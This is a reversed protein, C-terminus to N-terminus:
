PLLLSQGAPTPKQLWGPPGAQVVSASQPADGGQMRECSQTGSMSPWATEVSVPPMAASASGAASSSPFIRKLVAARSALRDFLTPSPAAAGSNLLAATVPLTGPLTTLVACSADYTVQEVQWASKPPWSPRVHSKECNPADSRLVISRRPRAPKEGPVHLLLGDFSHKKSAAQPSPLTQLIFECIIGGFM